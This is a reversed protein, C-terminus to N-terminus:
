TRNQDVGQVRVYLKRVERPPRAKKPGRSKFAVEGGEGKYLDAQSTTHPEGRIIISAIRDFIIGTM